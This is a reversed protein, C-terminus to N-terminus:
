GIPSAKSPRPRISRTPPRTRRRLVPRQVQRWARGPRLVVRVAQRARRRRSARRGRGNWESSTVNLVYHKFDVREVFGEDVRYVAITPPPETRSTWETCHGSAAAVFQATVATGAVFVSAFIALMAPAIRM